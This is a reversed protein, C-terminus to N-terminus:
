KKNVLQELMAQMSTLQAQLAENQAELEKLKSASASSRGSSGSGSQSSQGVLAPNGAVSKLWRAIAMREGQSFNSQEVPVAVQGEEVLKWRPTGGWMLVQAEFKVEESGRQIIGQATQPNAELNIENIKISYKSM